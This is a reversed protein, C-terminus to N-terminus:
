RLLRLAPLFEGPAFSPTSRMRPFSAFSSVGSTSRARALLLPPLAQLLFGGGGRLQRLLVALPPVAQRHSARV